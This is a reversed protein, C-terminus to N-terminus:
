LIFSKKKESKNQGCSEKWSFALSNHHSSEGVLSCQAKITSTVPASDRALHHTKLAVHSPVIHSPCTKTISTALTTDILCSWICLHLPKSSYWVKSLPVQSRTSSGLGILQGNIDNLLVCIQDFFSAYAVLTAGLSRNPDVLTQDLNNRSPFRNSTPHLTSVLSEM